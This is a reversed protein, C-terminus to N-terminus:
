QSASLPHQLDFVLYGSGQAYIPYEEYLLEKLVPQHDFQDFDTVLFYSKGQIRENFEKQLDDGGKGRLNALNREATDPWLNVKKWGYYMLPYGYDQTLAIIKGEEPISGAIGSWLSPAARYDQSDLAYVSNWISFALFIAMLVWFSVQWRWLAPSLMGQVSIHELLLTAVPALSIAVIPVLQLSYYSHTTIQYPLSLGYI